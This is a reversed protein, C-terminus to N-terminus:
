QNMIFLSFFLQDLESYFSQESQLGSCLLREAKLSEAGIGGVSVFLSNDLEKKILRKWENGLLIQLPTLICMKSLM